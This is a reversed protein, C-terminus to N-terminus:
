VREPTKRAVAWRELWRDGGSRHYGVAVLAFILPDALWHLLMKRDNASPWKMRLLGAMSARPISIECDPVSATADNIDAFNLGAVMAVDMNFYFRPNCEIMWVKGDPAIRADFNIVGSLNMTQVIRATINELAPQPAFRFVDNPHTYVVQKTIAGNRCFVTISWDEGAMFDQILVPAYDIAALVTHANEPTVLKVGAGGSDDLPKAMAPLRLDGRALAAEVDARDDFMQGRPHPVNLEACLEMFRDKSVLRDFAATHPVPFHPTVLHPAIVSLYRTTPADSPMVLGIGHRHAIADINAAGARADEEFYLPVFRKCYRSLAPVRADNQGAITIDGGGAVAACRMVRYQADFWASLLLINM